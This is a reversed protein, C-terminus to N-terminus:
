EVKRLNLQYSTNDENIKLLRYEDSQYTLIDDVAPTVGATTFQTKTCEMVADISSNYDGFDDPDSPADIEMIGKFVTLSSDLTFSEGFVDEAAELADELQQFFDAM